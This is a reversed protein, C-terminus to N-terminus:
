GYWRQLTAPHSRTLGSWAMEGCSQEARGHLDGEPVASIRGHKHERVAQWEQLVKSSMEEKSIPEIVARMQPISFWPTSIRNRPSPKINVRHTAANILGNSVKELQQGFNVLICSDRVPVDLWEGSLDEVQLGPQDDTSLLTIQLALPLPTLESVSRKHEDAM